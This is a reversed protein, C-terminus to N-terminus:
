SQRAEGVRTDPKLFYATMALFSMGSVVFKIAAPIPAPSVFGEICGAILLMPVCGLILKVAELGNTTLADIRRRDGPMLIAKGIMLGAGGAIFIATLEIVGHGAVFTPIEWFKYKVCLAFVMGLLLGNQILVYVTVLGAFIGGGFAMFTVTINNTQISTAGLPNAKNLSETWNRHAAIDRKLGPAVQDAFGEDVTCAVWAFATAILFILFAALTYRYTRRFVAPFEFRFFNGIVSFGSSESRYIAGHARGVLHNLYNILRQDRMEERAIALDAATRRYLRGFERVEEGSLNNLRLRSARATLAELRKWKELRAQLFDKLMAPYIVM